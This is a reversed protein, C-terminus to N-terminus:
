NCHYRIESLAILIGILVLTVFYYAPATSLKSYQKTYELIIKLAGPYFGFEQDRM